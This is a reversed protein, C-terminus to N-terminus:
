TTKKYHLVAWINAIAAFFAMILFHEKLDQWGSGKMVVMRMVEIFYTVPNMRSIWQAWEPMSEIPTFLGSMLLFVMMFFFALSMSQQQTAAYTSILLGIGLVAVLYLALFLYLVSIRGVPVIGYAGRAIVLLGISFVFNGILWFPILKGLIFHVKKVPSVNIQEITGKEKEAVINLSCMIMGVLTVLVVLIGPVMFFRYNLSPNFRNISQIDILPPLVFAGQRTLLQIRIQNNFSNIIRGLYAAGLNAKTGNIANVSIFLQQQNEKVLNKEFYAPIELIIDAQDKEMLAFVKHYDHGFDVLKFYGSAVISTILKQSYTSRDHDVVAININKIEYDAALPLILLQVFPIVLILRLITPNRFIQKFEKQLLYILVKM